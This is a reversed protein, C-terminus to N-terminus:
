CILSEMKKITYELDKKVPNGLQLKEEYKKYFYKCSSYLKNIFYGSEFDGMYTDMAYFAITEDRNKVFEFYFSSDACIIRKRKEISKYFSYIGDLLDTITLFIMFYKRSNNLTYTCQYSKIEVSGLEYGTVAEEENIIYFDMELM